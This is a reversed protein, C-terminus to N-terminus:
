LNRRLWYIFEKVMKERSRKSLGFIKYRLNKTLNTLIDVFKADSGQLPKGRVGTLVSHNGKATFVIEGKDPNTRVDISDLTEGTFTVNANNPNYDPSTINHDELAERRDITSDALAPFSKGDYGKGNLADAKIQRLTEKAIRDLARKNKTFKDFRKQINKFATM